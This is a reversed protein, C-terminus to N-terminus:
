KLISKWIIRGERIRKFVLFGALSLIVDWVIDVAEEVFLPNGGFALMFEVIEFVINIVIWIKFKTPFFYYFLAGSFFHVFSWYNIILFQGTYLHTNLFTVVKSPIIADVIRDLATGGKQSVVM